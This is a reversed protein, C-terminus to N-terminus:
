RMLTSGWISVLKRLERAIEALEHCRKKTEELERELRSLQEQKSVREEQLVRLEFHDRPAEGRLDVVDKRLSALDGELSHIYGDVHDLIVELKAKEYQLKAVERRAWFTFM